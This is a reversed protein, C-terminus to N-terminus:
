SWGHQFAYLADQLSPFGKFVADNLGVVCAKCDSWKHFVGSRRGRHVVFFPSPRSSVDKVWCMRDPSPPMWDYLSPLAEAAKSTVTLPLAQSLAFQAPTFKSPGVWLRGAIIRLSGLLSQRMRDLMLFFNKTCKDLVWEALGCHYREVLLAAPFCVRKGMM